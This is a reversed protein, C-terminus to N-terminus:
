HTTLREYFAVDHDRWSLVYRVGKLNFYKIVMLLPFEVLRGHLPHPLVATIIKPEEAFDGALDLGHEDLM